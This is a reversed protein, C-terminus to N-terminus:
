IPSFHLFIKHFFIVDQCYQDKWDMLMAYGENM